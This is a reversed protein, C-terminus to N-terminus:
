YLAPPNVKKKSPLQSLGDVPGTIRAGGGREVSGPRGYIMTWFDYEFHSGPSRIHFISFSVDFLLCRITPPFDFLILQTQIIPIHLKLLYGFSLCCSVVLINNQSNAYFKCPFHFFITGSSQSGEEPKSMKWDRPLKDFKRFNEFKEFNDHFFVIGKSLTVKSLVVWQWTKKAFLSQKFSCFFVPKFSM